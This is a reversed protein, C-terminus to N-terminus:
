VLKDIVWFMSFMFGLCCAQVISAVVIYQLSMDAQPKLEEEMWQRCEEPTAERLKWLPLELQQPM